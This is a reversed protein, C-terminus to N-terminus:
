VVPARKPWGAKEIEGGEDPSDASGSEGIQSFWDQEVDGLWGWRFRELDGVESRTSKVNEAEDLSPLSGTM